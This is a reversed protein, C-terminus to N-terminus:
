GTSCVEAASVGGLVQRLACSLLKKKVSSAVVCGSHKVELTVKM